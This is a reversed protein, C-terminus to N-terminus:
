NSILNIGFKAALQSVISDSVGSQKLSALYKTIETKNLGTVDGSEDKTIYLKTIVNSYDDVNNDNKNTLNEAQKNALNIRSEKEKRELDNNAGINNTQAYTQAINAEIQKIKLQSEQNALTPDIAKIQKLQEQLTELQTKKIQNEASNPDLAAKQQADRMAYELDNLKQQAETQKQQTTKYQDGYRAKLAPDSMIKQYKLNELSAINPDNPNIAKLENIKASIDTIGTMDITPTGANANPNYYGTTQARNLENNLNTTDVQGKAAIAALMNAFNQQNNASNIQNNQINYGMGRDNLNMLESTKSAEIEALAKELDSGYSQTLQQRNNAIANLANIQEQTLTNEQNAYDAKLNTEAINQANLNNSLATQIGVNGRVSDGGFYNGNAALREALAQTQQASQASAMNRNDQFQPVLENLRQRLTSIGTKYNTNITGEQNNLGTQSKDYADKLATQRSAKQAETLTNLANTQDTIYKGTDIKAQAAQDDKYKQLAAAIEAKTDVVPTSVTNTAAKKKKGDFASYTIAPNGVNGTTALNTAANIGVQIPNPTVYTANSSTTPITTVKATQKTTKKKSSSSNNGNLGAYSENSDPFYIGDVYKGMNDGDKTNEVM